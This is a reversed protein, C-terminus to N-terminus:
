GKQEEDKERTEQVKRFLAEAIEDVPTDPRFFMYDGRKMAEIRALQRATDRDYEDQAKPDSFFRKGCDRCERDQWGARAANPSPNSNKSKCSPCLPTSNDM